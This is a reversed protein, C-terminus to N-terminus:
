GSSSHNLFLLTKEADTNETASRNGLDRV